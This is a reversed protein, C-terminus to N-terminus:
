CAIQKCLFKLPIGAFVPVAEVLLMLVAEESVPVVKMPLERGQLIACRGNELNEVVSLM